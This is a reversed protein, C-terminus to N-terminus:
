AKGDGRPEARFSSPLLGAREILNLRSWRAPPTVGTSTGGLGATLVLLGRWVGRPALLVTPPMRVQASLEPRLALEDIVSSRNGANTYVLGLFNARDRGGRPCRSIYRCRGARRGRLEGTGPIAVVAPQRVVM